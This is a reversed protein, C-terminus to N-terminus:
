RAAEAPAPRVLRIPLATARGVDGQAKGSGMDVAWGQQAKLVDGGPMSGAANEYAYPNVAVTNVSVAGTWHWEAPANPFLKVDVSPPNAGRDVLRRLEAVRPMRWRVGERQWREKAWAKAQNFTFLRPEGACTTGDWRMGEVCRAWAIHARSDVVLTGDPSVHLTPAAPPAAQPAPPAAAAAGQLGAALWAVALGRRGHHWFVHWQRAM